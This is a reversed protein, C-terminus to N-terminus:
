HLCSLKEEIITISSQYDVFMYLGDLKYRFNTAPLHKDLAAYAPCTGKDLKYSERLLCAIATCNEESLQSLTVTRFLICLVTIASVLCSGNTYRADTCEDLEASLTRVISMAWSEMVQTFIIIIHVCLIFHFRVSNLKQSSWNRRTYPIGDGTTSEQSILRYKLQNFILEVNDVMQSIGFTAYVIDCSQLKIQYSHLYVGLCSAVVLELELEQNEPDIAIPRDTDELGESGTLSSYVVVWDEKPFFITDWQEWMGAYFPYLEYTM